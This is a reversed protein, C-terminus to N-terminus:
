TGAARILRYGVDYHQESLLQGYQAAWQGTVLDLQLRAVGNAVETQDALAFASMNARVLPDLYLHPRRWGAAAFLDTVDAPLPFPHIVVERRTIAQIQSAVMSVPPFATYAAQWVTPFYTSFWWSQGARPDFTFIVLPGHGVIRQIETLATAPQRFHHYALLVLGGEAAADTLPAHEAVGGIWWVAPHAQRQRRMASAPELALVRYGRKALANGYNGIGAGIDIITSGMPLALLNVIATVLHPDASRTQTYSQGIIDYMFFNTHYQRILQISM